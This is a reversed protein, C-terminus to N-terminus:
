RIYNMEGGHIIKSTEFLIAGSSNLIFVASIAQHQAPLQLCINAVRGILVVEIGAMRMGGRFSIDKRTT